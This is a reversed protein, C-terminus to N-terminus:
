GKGWKQYKELHKKQQEEKALLEARERAAEKQLV